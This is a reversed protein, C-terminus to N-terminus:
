RERLLSVIATFEKGALLHLSTPLPRWLHLLRHTSPRLLSTELLWKLILLMLELIILPLLREVLVEAVVVLLKMRLWYLLLM